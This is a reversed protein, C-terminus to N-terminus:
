GSFRRILGKNSLSQPSVDRLNLIQSLDAVATKLDGLEVHSQSRRFLAIFRRDPSTDTLALVATRDGIAREHDGREAYIDARNNFACARMEDPADLSDIMATFDTFAKESQEARHHLIGRNHMAMKTVLSNPGARSIAAEFRETANPVDGERFLFLSALNYDGRAAAEQLRREDRHSNALSILKAMQSQSLPDASAELVAVLDAVVEGWVGRAEASDLPLDFLKTLGPDGRFDSASRIAVVGLDDPQIAWAVRLIRRASEGALGPVILRDLVYREGLIDPQLGAFYPAGPTSGALDSYVDHEILDLDPLLNAVNFTSLFEFGGLKPLLGSVMTALLLLNEVRKLREPDPILLKRRGAEKQLVRQLLDTESAAQDLYEAAIMTFLPRGRPDFSRMLRMFRHIAEEDWVKSQKTAIEGALSLIATSDLGRVILPEGHQSAAMQASESQSEERFFIPWWAAKNREVLLVRVPHEFLAASRDLALILDSIGAARSAVYDIVVLTKKSPRYKTWDYDHKARDLFGASWQSTCGLCLELALRSKGAGASGTLLWWSFRPSTELFARLQSMESDRGVLQTTRSSFALQSALPDTVPLRLPPDVAEHVRAPAPQYQPFLKPMSAVVHSQISKLQDLNAIAQTAKVVDDCDLVDAKWDFAVGPCSNSVTYRSQKPILLFVKLHSIAEGLNQKELCKLTGALKESGQESTVQVGLRGKADILDICPFNAAEKNTGVLSWGFVANLLGAVFDEAQVNTDTLNLAGGPRVFHQFIALASRIDNILQEKALM